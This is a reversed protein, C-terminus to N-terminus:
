QEAPTASAEAPAAPAEAPAIPAAPTPLTSRLTALFADRGMTLQDLQFRASNIKRELDLLHDVYARQQPTLNELAYQFGDIEIYPKSKDQGM